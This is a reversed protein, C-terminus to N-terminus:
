DAPVPAGHEQTAAPMRARIVLYGYVGAAAACLAGLLFAIRYGGNLAAVPDVGLSCRWGWRAM